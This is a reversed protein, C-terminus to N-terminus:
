RPLLTDDSRLDRMPDDSRPRSLRYAEMDDETVPAGDDGAGGYKPRKAPAHAQQSPRQTGDGQVQREAQGESQAKAGSDKAQQAAALRQLMGDVNISESKAAKGVAGTCYSRRSTQGCCAYGWEMASRDFYSGWVRSHNGELVDEDYRRARAKDALAGGGGGNSSAHGAPVVLRGDPTYERYADSEAALQLMQRDAAPQQHEAGGYREHLERKRQEKLKAAREEFQQKALLVQTPNAQLHAESEGRRGAEWAFLQAQAMAVADGTAKVYNDGAYDTEGPALEPNPNARMSRTKPDYYASDIDLNRLYKATDERIRLNRVTAKVKNGVAYGHADTQKVGDGAAAAAGGEGEEESSDDDSAAQLQAAALARQAAQSARAAAAEAAAADDGQAAAEAARAAEVAEAAAASARAERRQERRQQKARLAADRAALAAKRKEEEAKNFLQVTKLHETGDYGAWRDRSADYSLRLSDQVADDAALDRGSKWAGVKRPRELCDKQAHTTAGCNRCAGKVFATRREGAVTDKGRRYWKDLAGEPGEEGATRKQHKLGEGEGQNLYWPAKAMFEPIHPNILNGDKDVEPAAEGAKRAEELALKQRREERTQRKVEGPGAASRLGAGGAGAGGAGGLSAM